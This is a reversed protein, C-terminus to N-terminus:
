VGFFVGISFFKSLPEHRTKLGNQFSNKETSIKAILIKLDSLPPRSSINEPRSMSGSVDFFSSDLKRRRMQLRSQEVSSLCHRVLDTKSAKFTRLVSRPAVRMSTMCTSVFLIRGYTTLHLIRLESKKLGM